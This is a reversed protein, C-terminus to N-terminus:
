DIQFSAVCVCVCDSEMDVLTCIVGDQKWNATCLAEKACFTLLIILTVKKGEPILM